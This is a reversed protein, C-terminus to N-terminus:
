SRSCLPEPEPASGTTTFSCFTDAAATSVTISGTFLAAPLFCYTTCVSANAKLPFALLIAASSSFAPIQVYILSLHCLFRRRAHFMQRFANKMKTQKDRYAAPTCHYYRTFGRYFSSVTAYGTAAAIEEITINERMLLLAAREMRLKAILDSYSIGTSNLVIRRIQKESYHFEESLDELRVTAFDTQIRNLIASYEHKWFFDESRPLRVSGEYRRLLLVLCTSMYANM